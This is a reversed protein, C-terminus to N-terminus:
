LVGFAASFFAHQQLLRGFAEMLPLLWEERMTPIAHFWFSGQRFLSHSRRKVTNVKLKKDLGVEECAAGLLTLLAHAITTLLLVRDRRNCNSLRTASLGLGFRLDKADRFTEEILFRRGYLATVETATLETRSTALCWADKMKRDYVVVVAGVAAKDATVQAEALKRARGNAHLWARAPQCVGDCEVLIDERFRIIYDWGMADLYDYRLQSGFGRDALLTLPIERPVCAQLRDLLDNELQFQHGKLDKKLVTKWLLPTARGHTTVLHLACTTQDDADFDTWDIIVVAEKRDALVYSVWASDLSKPNIGSNSLLRDVQKIAHKPELGRALALGQGIAHVGVAAAHLVGVVGNAFSLVRKAHLCDGFLEKLFETVRDPSLASRARKKSSSKTAEQKTAMPLDLDYKFLMQLIYFSYRLNQGVARSDQKPIGLSPSSANSLATTGSTGRWDGVQQM